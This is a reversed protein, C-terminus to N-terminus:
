HMADDSRRGPQGYWVAALHSDAYLGAGIIATDGIRGKLKGVTSGTSGAAALTGKLDLVIAGVTGFDRIDSVGHESLRRRQEEVTFQANDVVVCGYKAAMADAAPGVLLKHPGRSLLCHAACVPNMVTRTAAVAGYAGTTGDIM